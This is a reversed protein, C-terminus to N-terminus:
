KNKKKKLVLLVVVAAIAVAAVCGIVIGVIAGTGLGEPENEGSGSPAKGTTTVTKTTEASAFSTDTAAKRIKVTYSTGAKLNGWSGLATWATDKGELKFEYGTAGTYRISNDTVTPNALDVTPRAPLAISTAASYAEGEVARVYITSGPTVTAGTALLNDGTFDTASKSVQYLTGDFTITEATYDITVVSANPSSLVKTDTFGVNSLTVTKENATGLQEVPAADFYFYIKNNGNDTAQENAYISATDLCITYTGKAYPTHNMLMATGGGWQSNMSDFYVGFKTDKSFTVTFVLYRNAFYYWNNVPVSICYALGASIDAEDYDVTAGTASADSVTFITGNSGSEGFAIEVDNYFVVQDIIINKTGEFTTAAADLFARLLFSESTVGSMDVDFEHYGAAYSKHETLANWDNGIALTIASDTYFGFHLKPTKTADFNSVPVHVSRESPNGESNTFDAFEYSVKTGTYTALTQDKEITHLGWTAWDGIALEPVGIDNIYKPATNTGFTMGGIELSAPQSGDKVKIALVIKSPAAAHTDLYPNIYGGIPVSATRYGESVSPAGGSWLSFSFAHWGKWFSEGTYKTNNECEDCNDISQFYGYVNEVNNAKLKIHFYTWDTPWGNTLTESIPVEVYATIEHGDDSTMATTSPATVTVVAAGNDIMGEEYGEDTSTLKTLTNEALTCNNAGTWDAYEKFSKEPADVHAPPETYPVPTYSVGDVELQNFVITKNVNTITNKDFYILLWVTTATDLATLPINRTFATDATMATSEAIPSGYVGTWDWQGNGLMVQVTADADPTLTLDVSSASTVGTVDIAIRSFTAASWNYSVATRNQSADTSTGNITYGAELNFTGITVARPQIDAKAERVAIVAAFGSIALVIAFFISALTRAKLNLTKTKM